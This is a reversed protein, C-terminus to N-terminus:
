TTGAALATTTCCVGHGISATSTTAPSASLPKVAHSSSVVSGRRARSTALRSPDSRTTRSHADSQANNERIKEPWARNLRLRAM